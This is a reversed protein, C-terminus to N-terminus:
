IYYIVIITITRTADADIVSFRVCFIFFCPLNTNKGTCMSMSILRLSHPSHRSASLVRYLNSNIGDFRYDIVKQLQSLMAQKGNEGLLTSLLQTNHRLFLSRLFHQMQKTFEISLKLNFRQFKVIGVIYSLHTNRLM